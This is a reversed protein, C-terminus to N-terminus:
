YGGPLQLNHNHAPVARLGAARPTPTPRRPATHWTDGEGAM